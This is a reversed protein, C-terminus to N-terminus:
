VHSDTYIRCAAAYHIHPGIIYVHCVAYMISGGRTETHTHTHTVQESTRGGTKISRKLQNSVEPAIFDPWKIATSSKPNGAKRRKGGQIGESNEM